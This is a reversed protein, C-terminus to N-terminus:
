KGSAKRLARDYEAPLKDAKGSETWWKPQETYIWVYEDTRDLAARTTKEFADPSYFNKSFDRPNWPQRHSNNDMWVGFGFQFHERYKAPDAVIPLVGKSMMEYAAAFRSTDTYAYSSEHGDIIRSKGRSADLMGDLFPALLGYPASQLRAPDNHSQRWPLHYGYSLLLTVDPCGAQFAEMAEAGRKRAQAAYESWSKSKSDRQKAYNFLPQNYQEIDFLIGACHGDHAFSAVLKANNVVATYDDFWDLDGPATNFRVFNDTFRHFQTAKLDDLSHRLDSAKFARKGWCQWTFPLASGKEDVADVHFVVGDFPTAEMEAVHRRMFATGPEDWGFEILKKPRAPDAAICISATLLCM